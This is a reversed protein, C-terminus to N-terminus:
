LSILLKMFLTLFIFSFTIVFVAWYLATRKTMRRTGYVVRSYDDDPQRINDGRSVSGNQIDETNM